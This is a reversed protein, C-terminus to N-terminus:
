VKIGYNGLLSKQPKPTYGEIAKVWNEGNWKKWHLMTITCELMIEEGSDIFGNENKLGCKFTARLCGAYWELFRLFAEHRSIKLNKIFFEICIEQLQDHRPLWIYENYDKAPYWLLVQLDEFDPDFVFDGSKFIWQRQIDKASECMKIYKESTDVLGDELYM